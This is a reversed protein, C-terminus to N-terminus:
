FNEEWYLMIKGPSKKLEQANPSTPPPPSPPVNHGGLHISVKLVRPIDLVTKKKLDAFRLSSTMHINRLLNQVATM